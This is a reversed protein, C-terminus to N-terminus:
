TCCYAHATKGKTKDPPDNNCRQRLEALVRFWAKQSVTLSCGPRNPRGGQQGQVSSLKEAGAGHHQQCQARPRCTAGDDLAAQWPFGASGIRRGRDRRFAPAIESRLFARQNLCEDIAEDWGILERGAALVAAAGNEDVTLEGSRVASGFAMVHASRELLSRFLLARSRRVRRRLLVALAQGREVGGAAGFEAALGERLKGILLFVPGNFAELLARELEVADLGLFEELQDEFVRLVTKQGIRDVAAVPVHRRPLHDTEGARMVVVAVPDVTMILPDRQRRDGNGHM